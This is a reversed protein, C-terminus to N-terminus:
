IVIEEGENNPEEFRRTFISLLEPTINHNRETERHFLRELQVEKSAKFYILKWRANIDEAFKKYFDRDVKKWLGYDLMVSTRSQLDSKIAPLLSDKIDQEAKSFQDPTLKRGKYKALFYEDLSYRKCHKNELNKAYTTKGSGPLGCLLYLTPKM